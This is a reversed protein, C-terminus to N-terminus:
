DGSYPLTYLGGESMDAKVGYERKWADAVPDGLEFLGEWGEPLEDGYFRWTPGNKADMTLELLGYRTYIEIDGNAELYAILASRHQSIDLELITTWVEGDTNGGGVVKLIQKIGAETAVDDIWVEGFSSEDSPQEGTDTFPMYTGDPLRIWSQRYSINYEPADERFILQVSGDENVVPEMYHLIWSINQDTGQILAILEEPTDALDFLDIYIRKDTIPEGEENYDQHYYSNGDLGIAVTSMVPVLMGDRFVVRFGGPEPVLYVGDVDVDAFLTEPSIQESDAPYQGIDFPTFITATNPGLAGAPLESRNVPSIKGATSFLGADDHLEEVNISTGLAAQAWEAIHEDTINPNTYRERLFDELVEQSLGTRYLDTEVISPEVPEPTETPTSTSTATPDPIDTPVEEPEDVPEAADTPSPMATPTTTETPRTDTPPPTPTDPQLPMSTSVAPPPASPPAQETVLATPTETPQAAEATDAGPGGCATLLVSALLLTSMALRFRTGPRMSGGGAAAAVVQPIDDVLALNDVEAMAKPLFTKMFESMGIILDRQEDQTLVRGMELQELKQVFKYYDGVATEPLGLVEPTVGSDIADGTNLAIGLTYAMIAEIRENPDFEQESQYHSEMYRRRGEPTDIEDLHNMLVTEVASAYPKLRGVPIIENDNIALSDSVSFIQLERVQDTTLGGTEAFKDALIWPMAISMAATEKEPQITTYKLGEASQM